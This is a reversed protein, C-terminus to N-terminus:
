PAWPSPAASLLIWGAATALLLVRHWPVGGTRAWAAVVIGVMAPATAPGSERFSPAAWETIYGSIEGVALPAALLRPGVPTLAAALVSLLPVTALRLATRRDARRDLQLGAVVVVGLVVGSFWMGHCSAWLWSVGVLWWRPRLDRATRLWAALTVALLLDSLM